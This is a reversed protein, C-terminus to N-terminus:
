RNLEHLQRSMFGEKRSIGFVHYIMLGVEQNAGADFGGSEWQYAPGYFLQFSTRSSLRYEFNLKGKIPIPRSGYYSHEYGVWFGGSLVAKGDQSQWLDSFSNWSIRYTNEGNGRRYSAIVGGQLKLDSWLPVEAFLSGALEFELGHGSSDDLVLSYANRTVLDGGSRIKYAAFEGKYRYTISDNSEEFLTLRHNIQKNNFYKHYGMSLFAKDEETFRTRDQYNWIYGVEADYYRFEGGRISGGEPLLEAGLERPDLFDNVEFIDEETGHAAPASALLM